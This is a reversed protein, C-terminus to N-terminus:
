IDFAHLEVYLAYQIVHCVQDRLLGTGLPQLQNEVHGGINRAAQHAVHHPEAGWSRMKRRVEDVVAESGCVVGAYGDGPGDLFM